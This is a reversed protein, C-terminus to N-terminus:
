ALVMSSRQARFERHGARATEHVLEIFPPRAQTTLNTHNTDDHHKLDPNYDNPNSTSGLNNQNVRCRGTKSSTRSTNSDTDPHSHPSL